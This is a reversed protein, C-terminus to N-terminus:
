RVDKHKRLSSSVRFLLWAIRGQKTKGGKPMPRFPSYPSGGVEGEHPPSVHGFYHLWMADWEATLGYFTMAERMERVCYHDRDDPFRSHFIPECCGEELKHATWLSSLPKGEMELTLGADPISWFSYKHSSPM